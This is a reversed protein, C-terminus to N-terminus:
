LRLQGFLQSHAAGGDTVDHPLQGCLSKDDASLAATGKDAMWGQFGILAQQVEDIEGGQDLLLAMLGGEVLQTKYQLLGPIKKGLTELDRGRILHDGAAAEVHGVAVEAYQRLVAERRCQNGAALM